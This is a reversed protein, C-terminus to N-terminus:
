SPQDALRLQHRNLVAVVKNMDPGAGCERDVATFMASAGAGSTVGLIRATPSAYRFAHVMGAPVHVFGGTAVKRKTGGCDFDV